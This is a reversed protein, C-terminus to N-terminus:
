TQRWSLTQNVKQILRTICPLLFDSYVYAEFATSRGKNASSKLILNFSHTLHKIQITKATWFKSWLNWVSIRCRSKHVKHRKWCIERFLLPNIKRKLKTLFINSLTGPNNFTCFSSPNAARCKATILPWSSMTLKMRCFTLLIEKHDIEYRFVESLKSNSFLPKAIRFLFKSLTKEWFFVPLTALRM